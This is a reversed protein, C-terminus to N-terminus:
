MIIVTKSNLKTVFLIRNATLDIPFSYYCHLKTSNLLIWFLSWPHGHYVACLCCTYIYIYMYVFLVYMCIYICLFYMCIYIVFLICIYIFLFYIFIYYAYMFVFLICASNFCVINYYFSMWGDARWSCDYMFMHEFTMM